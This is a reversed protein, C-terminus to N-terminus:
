RQIIGALVRGQSLARGILAVDRRDKPRDVGQKWALLQHPDLVMVGDLTITVRRMEDYTLSFLHDDAPRLFDFAGIRMGKPLGREPGGYRAGYIPITPYQPTCPITQKLERVVDLWFEDTVVVDIDPTSPKMDYMVMAAGGVIIGHGVLLPVGTYADVIEQRAYAM